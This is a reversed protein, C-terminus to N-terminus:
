RVMRIFILEFTPVPPDIMNLKKVAVNVLALFAQATVILLLGVNRHFLNSLQALFAAFKGTREADNEYFGLDNSSDDADNRTDSPLLAYDAVVSSM